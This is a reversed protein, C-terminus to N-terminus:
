HGARNMNNSRLEIRKDERIVRNMLRSSTSLINMDQLQIRVVNMSHEAVAPNDGQELLHVAPGM